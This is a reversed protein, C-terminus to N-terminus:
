YCHRILKLTTKCFYFFLTNMLILSVLKFWLLTLFYLCDHKILYNTHKYSLLVLIEACLLLLISGVYLTIKYKYRYNVLDGLFEVGVAVINDTAECRCGCSSYFGYHKDPSVVLPLVHRYLYTKKQIKRFTKKTHIKLVMKPLQYM